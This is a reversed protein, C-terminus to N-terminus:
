AERGELISRVQDALTAPDLPKTVCGAAEPVEAAAQTRATMFVVPIDRLSEDAQIRRFTEAGDMEPMMWDLLILDPRTQALRELLQLGNDVAEARYGAKKLALRAVLQIDPDDEAILIFAGM